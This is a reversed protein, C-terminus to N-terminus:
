SYVLTIKPLAAVATTGTQTTAVAASIGSNYLDSNDVAAPDCTIARTMGTVFKICDMALTTATGGGPVLNTASGANYLQLFGTGGTGSAATTAPEILAVYLKGASSKVNATTTTLTNSRYVALSDGIRDAQVVAATIRDLVRQGAEGVYQGSAKLQHLVTANAM